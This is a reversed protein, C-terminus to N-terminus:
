NDTDNDSDSDTENNSSTPDLGDNMLYEIETKKTTKKEYICEELITQPCHKKNLKIVSDLMILSLCKCSTNEKPIIIGHFNTNVNDEYIKIKTKIYIDNGGNASESDSKKNMLSNVKEGYKPM